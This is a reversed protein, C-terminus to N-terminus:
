GKGMFKKMLAQAQESALLKETAEKNALMKKIKESVKPNMDSVIGEVNGTEIAHQLKQGDIGAKKAAENIIDRNSNNQPSGHNNTM